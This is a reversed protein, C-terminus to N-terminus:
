PLVTHGVTGGRTPNRARRGWGRAPPPACQARPSCLLVSFCFGGLAPVNGFVRLPPALPFLPARVPRRSHGGVGRWSRSGSVSGLACVGTHKQAGARPARAPLSRLAAGYSESSTASRAVLVSRVPSPVPFAGFRSLCSRFFSGERLDREIYPSRCIYLPTQSRLDFNKKQM